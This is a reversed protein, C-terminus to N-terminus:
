SPTHNKPNIIYLITMGIKYSKRPGGKKKNQGPHTERNLTKGDFSRNNHEEVKQRRPGSTKLNGKRLPQIKLFLVHSHTRPPKGNPEKM